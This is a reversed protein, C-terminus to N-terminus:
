GWKYGIIKYVQPIFGSQDSGASHEIIRFTTNTFTIGITRKDYGQIYCGVSALAMQVDFLNTLYTYGGLVENATPSGTIVTIMDYNSLNDLLNVDTNDPAYHLYDGSDYLVTRTFGVLGSMNGYSKDYQKIYRNGTPKTGLAFSAESFGSLHLSSRYATTDTSMISFSNGSITFYVNSAHEDFVYTSSNSLEYNTSGNTFKDSHYYTNGDAFTTKMVLGGTGFSNPLEFTPPETVHNQLYPRTSCSGYVEMKYLFDGNNDYAYLTRNDESTEYVFYETGDNKQATTLAAYDIDSIEKHIDDKDDMALSGLANTPTYDNTNQYAMTGLGVRDGLLNWQTGDFLFEQTNYVAFDGSVATVDNGDVTIPNTTSGDTLATTTRYINASSGGGGGSGGEFPADSFNQAHIEMDVSDSVAKVYVTKNYPVTIRTSDGGKVLAVDDTGAVIESHDSVLVDGDGLSRFWVFQYTADLTIEQETTTATITKIKSM